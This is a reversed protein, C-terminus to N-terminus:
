RCGLGLAVGVEAAEHARRRDGDDAGGVPRAAVGGLGQDVELEDPERPRDVADVRLRVSTMPRTHTGVTASRGSATSAMTTAMGAAPTAAAMSWAPARPQPPATTNLAPKPSTSDPRPYWSSRTAAARRCPSGTHPGLQLPITEGCERVASHPSAKETCSYSGVWGATASMEWLPLTATLASAVRRPNRKWVTMALPLWATSM